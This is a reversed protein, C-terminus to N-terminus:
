GTVVRTHSVKRDAIVDLWLKIRERLEPVHSSVGVLRGSQHLDM